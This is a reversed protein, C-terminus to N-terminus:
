SIKTAKLFLSNMVITFIKESFQVVSSTYKSHVRLVKILPM